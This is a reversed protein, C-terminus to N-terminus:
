ALCRQPSQELVRWVDACMPCEGVRALGHDPILTTRQGGCEACEAALARLKRELLAVRREALEYDAVAVFLQRGDPPEEYVYMGGAVCCYRPAPVYSPGSM